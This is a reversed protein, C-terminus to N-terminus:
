IQLKIRPFIPEEAAFCAKVDAAFAAVEIGLFVKQESALGGLGRELLAEAGQEEQMFHKLEGAAIQILSELFSGIASERGVDYCVQKLLEHAEWWYGQNFLDISYLYIECDQWNQENFGSVKPLEQGYSHGGEDMYPHPTKFPLHRYDPVSKNSYAPIVAPKFTPQM